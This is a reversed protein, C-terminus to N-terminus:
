GAAGDSAELEARRPRASRLALLGLAAFSLGAGPDVVPELDDPMGM